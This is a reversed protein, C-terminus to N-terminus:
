ESSHNFYTLSYFLFFYVFSNLIAFLICFPRFFYWTSNLNKSFKRHVTYSCPEPQAGRRRQLCFERATFIRWAWRTHMYVYSYVSPRISTSRYTRVLMSHNICKGFAELLLYFGLKRFCLWAIISTKSKKKKRKKRNCPGLLHTTVALDSILKRALEIRDRSLSAKHEKVKRDKKKKKETRCHFKRQRKIARTIPTM